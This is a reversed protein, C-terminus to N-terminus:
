EIVNSILKSLTFLTEGCTRAERAEATATTTPTSVSVELCEREALVNKEINFLCVYANTNCRGTLFLLWNGHVFYSVCTPLSM